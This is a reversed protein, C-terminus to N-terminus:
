KQETYFSAGDVNEVGMHKLKDKWLCAQKNSRIVERIVEGGVFVSFERGEISFYSCGTRIHQEVTIGKRQHEKVVSLLVRRRGDIKERDKFVYKLQDAHIPFVFLINNWVYTVGCMDKVDANLCLAKQVCASMARIGICPTVPYEKDSYKRFRKDQELGIWANEMIEQYVDDGADTAFAADCETTLYSERQLIPSKYNLYSGEFGGDGDVGIGYETLMLTNKPTFKLKSRLIKKNGEEIRLVVYNDCLVDAKTLINISINGYVDHYDSVTTKVFFDLQAFPYTTVWIAQGSLPKSVEKTFSKEIRELEFKFQEYSFGKATLNIDRTYAM